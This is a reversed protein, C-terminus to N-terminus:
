AQFAAPISATILPPTAHEGKGTSRSGRMRASGAAPATGRMVNLVVLAIPKTTPEASNPAEGEDREVQLDDLRWRSRSRAEFSERHHKSDEHGGHRGAAQDAAEPAVPDKRDDAGAIRAAPM